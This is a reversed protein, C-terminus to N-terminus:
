EPFSRLQAPPELCTPESGVWRGVYHSAIAPVLEPHRDRAVLDLPKLSFAGNEDAYPTRPTSGPGISDM